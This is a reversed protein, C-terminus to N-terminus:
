KKVENETALESITVFTYGKKKLADIIDPLAQLTVGELNHMLIIGGPRASSVVYRFMKEKSTGEVSACNATWYVATMGLQKVIEPLRKGARAGPPRIFHTGRGTIKRVCVSGAAIEQEIEKPSLFELARHNYTHNQIDHGEGAMRKVIDPFAEAQKGVVFFTARVGKQKLIDLLVGSDPKPGDDFSLAIIKRSTKVGYLKATNGRTSNLRAILDSADLYNPNAAITRELADVATPEDHMKVACHALNYNIGARSPKLCMIRWLRAWLKIAEDGSVPESVASSVANQVMVQISKESVASGYTDTGIIKVTHTGNAFRTTDWSYSFPPNNTMGVFKGDVHFSVIIVSDAKSLDAKLTITGSVQPLKSPKTKYDPDKIPWGTFQIPASKLFTMLCGIREGFADDSSKDQLATLLAMAESYDGKSMQCLASMAQLSEDEGADVAYKGSEIAKVYETAGKTPLDRAQSFCEAAEKLKNKSLYNLGKCYYACSCHKNLDLARDFEAVAGESRGGCLLTVGLAVHALTDGSNCALAEKLAAASENTKGQELESLGDAVHGLYDEPACFCASGAFTLLAAIITIVHFKHIVNM